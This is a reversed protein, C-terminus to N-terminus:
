QSLREVCLAIYCGVIARREAPIPWGFDAICPQLLLEVREAGLKVVAEALLQEFEYETAVSM